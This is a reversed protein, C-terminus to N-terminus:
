PSGKQMFTWFLESSLMFYYTCMYQFHHVSKMVDFRKIGVLPFNTAVNHAGVIANCPCCRFFCLVILSALLPCGELSEYNNKVGGALSTVVPRRQHSLGLSLQSWALQFGRRCRAGCALFLLYRYAAPSVVAMPLQLVITILGEHFSFVSDVLLLNWVHYFNWWQRRMILLFFFWTWYM